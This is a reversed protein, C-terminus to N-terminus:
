PKPFWTDTKGTWYYVTLGIWERWAPELAKLHEFLDFDIFRLADSSTRYDVPYAIVNVGQARAIGVSRAMHFASTVLLYTGDKKPLLPRTNLFNEYTNRSKSEIILRHEAIGVTTLLTKALSGESGTNQLRVSGSGGTFILPAKPYVTALYAAGLYRDGGLGLEATQWSLSRKLDEGGGLVIIGDINTPLNKPKYFRQELPQMLYDSVPYAMLVFAVLANPILLTKAIAIRNFVLFITGLTLALVILNGPSLFVWSIKSALFFLYDM